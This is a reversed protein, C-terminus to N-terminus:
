CYKSKNLNKKKNRIESKNIIDNKNEEERKRERKRIESENIIDNENENEKQKRKKKDRNIKHFPALYENWKVSTEKVINHEIIMQHIIDENNLAELVSAYEKNEELNEKSYYNNIALSPFFYTPFCERYIQESDPSDKIIGTRKDNFEPRKLRIVDQTSLPIKILGRKVAETMKIKPIGEATYFAADMEIFVKKMVDDFHCFQSNEPEELNMTRVYFFFLMMLTNRLMFGQKAYPLEDMVLAGMVGTVKWLIPDLPGFGNSATLFTRLVAGAYIPININLKKSKKHDETKEKTTEFEASNEIFIITDNEM